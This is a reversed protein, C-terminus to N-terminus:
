IERNLLFGRVDEPTISELIEVDDNGLFQNYNKKSKKRKPRGTSSISVTDEIDSQTETDNIEAHRKEEEAARRVPCFGQEHTAISSKRYLGDCYQCKVRM